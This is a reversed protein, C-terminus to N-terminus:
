SFQHQIQAQILLLMVYFVPHLYKGKGEIWNMDTYFLPFSAGTRHGSKSVHNLKLGLM